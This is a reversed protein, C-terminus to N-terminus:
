YKFPCLCSFFLHYVFSCKMGLFSLGSDRTGQSHTEFTYSFSYFCLNGLNVSSLDSQQSHTKDEGRRRGGRRGERKMGVSDRCFQWLQVLFPFLIVLIGAMYFLLLLYYSLAVDLSKAKGFPSQLPSHFDTWKGQM